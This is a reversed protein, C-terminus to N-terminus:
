FVKIAYVVLLQLEGESASTVNIPATEQTYVDTHLGFTRINDTGVYMNM